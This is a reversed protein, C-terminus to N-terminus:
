PEKLQPDRNIATAALLAGSHKSALSSGSNLGKQTVSFEKPEKLQHDRNIATAALLAGTHKSAM